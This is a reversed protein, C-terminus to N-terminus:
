HARDEGFVNVHRVCADRVARHRSAICKAGLWPVNLVSGVLAPSSSPPPTRARLLPLPPHHPGQACDGHRCLLINHEANETGHKTLHLTRFHTGIDLPRLRLAGM